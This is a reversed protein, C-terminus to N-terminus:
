NLLPHQITERCHPCELPFQPLLLRQLARRIAPLTQWTLPAGPEGETVRLRELLLFGFALMVLCAHHHFGRWSRGEFHDLGLEEKMQQYGQEVPWRSKWLRVARVCTTAAPLNSLAYKIQGEAQEEILLWVPEAGACEGHQWGHAPWVRLWAFRGSLKGRTGERWTKRRLPVRTALAHVSVPQPSDAALRGRTPPRGNGTPPPREWRPPEAFVVTEGTVGALYFLGRDHLGQRFDTATGYGADSVVVDGPLGEGRVQDLLDLALQGKTRFWRQEDPVGAEDLRQRQTRTLPGQAPVWSQPLYLRLALPYHGRPSVYHLSVAVQCNAKKGLAGCYQRQVGVSHRGQKPCSVDDIVFLGAPSAFTQALHRRYRQWLLQERWPSQNVFNQLAQTPDQIDWEAPLVVRGALPEISKREGDRLLGQLYIATWRAQDHRCFDDRFLAAYDRLRGLVAESLKPTETKNM